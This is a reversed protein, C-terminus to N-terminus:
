LDDTRHTGPPAGGQPERFEVTRTPFPIQIGEEKFRRLIRKRLEHQVLFQDNYEAVSFNLSFNLSSDGFGPILRASPAPDKLLGPIQGIAATGVDALVQEVRSADSDYSVSVGVQTSIQKGPLSYNTVISQALKNNPIVILNNSPDRLTTSRWSIDIVTGLEGSQLKIFDGLRIQRALSVYFGAFFNSLTDQLALAVALGGVGLAGLIPTIAVKFVDLLALLGLLGVVLSALVEMLTGMPLAGDLRSGYVRVLQGSMRALALTLSIVWLALLLKESWDTYNQPLESFETAVYIGLIVMWLLFPGHLSDVVVNGMSTSTSATWRRLRTFLIRRFAWGAVVVALFLGAPWLLGLDTM